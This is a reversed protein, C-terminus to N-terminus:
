RNCGGTATVLNCCGLSHRVNSARQTNNDSSKSRADGDDDDDYSGRERAFTM